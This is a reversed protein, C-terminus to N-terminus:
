EDDHCDGEYGKLYDVMSFLGALCTPCFSVAIMGIAGRQVVGEDECFNCSCITCKFTTIEKERRTNINIVKM